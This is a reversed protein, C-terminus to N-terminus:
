ALPKRWVAHVFVRHLVEGTARNSYRRHLYRSGGGAAWGTEELGAAAAHFRLATLNLFAALTGDRRVMVDGAHTLRAGAGFRGQAVDGEGYDRLLLAGGPRLCAAAALFVGRHAEPPVASLMFLLLAADFGRAGPALLPLAGAPRAGHAAAAARAVGGVGGATADGAFACLRAATAAGAAAAAAGALAVARASLDFGTALLFPLRALLPLLCAGTGCGFELLAFPAAAARLLLPFDRELYNRPLFFRDEHRAYFTDWSKASQSVIRGAWFPSKPAGTAAIAAAMAARQTANPPASEEWSMSPGGESNGGDPPAASAAAVGALDLETARAYQAALIVFLSLPASM